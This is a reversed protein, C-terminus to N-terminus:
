GLSLWSLGAVILCIGLYQIKALKEQLVFYAWVATVLAASNLVAILIATQGTSSSTAWSFGVWGLMELLGLLSTFSVKDKPPLVRERRIVVFAVWMIVASFLKILLLKSEWSGLSTFQGLLPFYAAHLLMTALIWQWGKALENGDLSGDFVEKWNVSTLIGGIVLIVIAWWQSASIVEKFVLAAFLAALIPYTGSVATAVTVQSVAFTRYLVLYLTVEALALGAALLLDRVSFELGTRTTLLFLLLWGIGSLTSMMLTQPISLSGLSKKIVVNATGFGFAGLFASFISFM